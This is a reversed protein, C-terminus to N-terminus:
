WYKRMQACVGVNMRVISSDGYKGKYEGGFVGGQVTLSGSDRIYRSPPNTKRQAAMTAV